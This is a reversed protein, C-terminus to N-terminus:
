DKQDLARLMQDIKNGYEISRDKEFVLDPIKYLTLKRGLERKITGTAKELGTQAKQNDSALNSMITYYVKAMSLDGVMQVDTITVGQVRPDRVKKQLIENVERKIEMGVRDTRFHNAM